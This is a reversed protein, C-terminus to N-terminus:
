LVYDIPTLAEKATEGTQIEMHVNFLAMLKRPTTRWFKEESMGLIVTGIYM